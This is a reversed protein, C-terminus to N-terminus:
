EEDTNYEIDYEMPTYTYKLKVSKFGEDFLLNADNYKTYLTQGNMLVAILTHNSITASAVVSSGAEDTFGTKIGDCDPSYLENEEQILQNSNAWELTGGKKLEWRAYSKAYSNKVMPVTRSYAAFKALDAATTYHNDDHWGDPTVFHTGTAGLQEACDNMLTMFVKVAEQNSLKSNHKYIRGCNVAITYAADNGSPLLLADMLMEFTLKMGKELGAVSSEEGIMEIEDGVTIVKDKDTIIKSAVIATLIKTTSAPYLKKNGNKQYIVEDTTADYLYMFETTLQKKLNKKQADTLRNFNNTFQKNLTYTPEDKNQKKAVSKPKASQNETGQVAVTKTKEPLTSNTNDTSNWHHIWGTIAAGMLMIVILTPFVRRKKRKRKSTSHITSRDSRSYIDEYSKQPKMSSM